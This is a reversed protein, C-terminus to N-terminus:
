WAGPEDAMKDARAMAERTLKEAMDVVLTPNIRGISLEGDALLGQLAAQMYADIRERSPKAMVVEAAADIKPLETEDMVKALGTGDPKEVLVLAPREPRGHWWDNIARLLRWLLSMM